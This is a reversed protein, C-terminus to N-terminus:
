PRCARSRAALGGNPLNPDGLLVFNIDPAPAGAPYQAALKRKEKNVINASQSEGFIVLHDNGHEARHDAL